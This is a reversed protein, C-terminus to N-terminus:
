RARLEELSDNLNAHASALRFKADSLAIHQRVADVSTVKEANMALTTGTAPSDFLIIHGAETMQGRWIGSAAEVIEKHTM